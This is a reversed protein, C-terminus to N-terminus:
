RKVTGETCGLGIKRVKGAANPNAGRELLLEAVDVKGYKSAVHLPTFGKTNLNRLFQTPRLVALHSLFFHAEGQDDQDASGERAAIHLPTHGATTTSNPNAKHELLLKVIEKHGMRSACHLPTQDDQVPLPSKNHCRVCKIFCRFLFYRLMLLSSVCKFL